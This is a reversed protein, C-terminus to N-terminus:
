KKEVGDKVCRFGSHCLGTDATSKMRSSPRYGICYLDSCLFSGGRQVRKMVGPENPDFSTDPGPPNTAPSNAYYDPLYWDACWEWVNGAMDYLGYGNAPFSAVPATGRFGDEMTNENPFRGQWINALWKGEPKQEKGWVYPQRDLGGRAAYEWEAETPLRKGAWKCYARADEWAIHVVPHKERGNLDSQPGEPHRWNAAPVYRWWLFHNDLPIVASPELGEAVRQRNIQDLTPPTFVISGPVLMEPSAGPFDKPDPKREAVTVYTAARVFKAFQENSVETKDMWFGDLTVQHVPKEDAQGDEAGMWFTGPPIWVMDNTWSMDQARPSVSNVSGSPELQSSPMSAERIRKTRAIEKSMWLVALLIALLLFALVFWPWIYRPKPESKNSSTVIREKSEAYGCSM